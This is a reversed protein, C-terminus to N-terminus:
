VVYPKLDTAGMPVNDVLIDCSRAGCKTQHKSTTVSYRTVNGISVPEGDIFTQQRIMTDYSYCVGNKCVLAGSKLNRIM